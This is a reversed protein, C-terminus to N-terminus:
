HQCNRCFYGTRQSIRSRQVPAGCNPCPEGARDYVTLQIRFHTSYESAPGSDVITAGQAIATQLVAKITTALLRYRSLSVTGAPRAPHIGAAFLAENAYINGIGAVVRQDMILQTIPVTRGRSKRHLYVGNFAKDFPEPGLGALLLHRLPENETWLILGFRRYDNLRLCVGNSLILDFHDHKGPVAAASVAHLFGTMGLHLIISGATCRFLLYKARRDLTHIIQGPLRATLEPSVPLRLDPNRVIVEAVTSGSVHAEIRRRIVEVEPLEPM